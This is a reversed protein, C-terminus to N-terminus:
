IGWDELMWVDCVYFVEVCLGVFIWLDFLVFDCGDVYCYFLVDLYMGINGIMMIVDMVFEIGEVYCICM